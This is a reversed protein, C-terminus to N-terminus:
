AKFHWPSAGPKKPDNGMGFGGGASSSGDFVGAQNLNFYAGGVNAAGSLLSGALVGSTSVKSSRSMNANQLYNYRQREARWATMDGEQVLAMADLEGQEATSLSLDLFSGSDVVAGSGGMKARQAGILLATEKRKENANRWAQNRAYDAEAQSAKANNESVQANYEAQANQAKAQQVAGIAGYVSSAISSVLGVVGMVSASIMCM